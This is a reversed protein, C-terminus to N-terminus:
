AGVPEVESAAAALREDGFRRALGELETALSSPGDLVRIGKDALVQLFQARPLGALRAGHAADREELYV